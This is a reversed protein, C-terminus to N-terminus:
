EKDKRPWSQMRSSDEQGNRKEPNKRKVFGKVKCSNTCFKKNVVGNAPRRKVVFARGCVSCIGVRGEAVIRCLESVVANNKQEYLRYGRNIDFSMTDTKNYYHSWEALVFSVICGAADRAALEEDNTHALFSVGGGDDLHLRVAEHSYYDTHLNDLEYLAEKIPLLNTIYNEPFVTRCLGMPGNVHEFEFMGDSDMLGRSVAAMKLIAGIRLSLLELEYLFVVRLDPKPRAEAMEYFRRAEEITWSNDMSPFQAFWKELANGYNTYKELDTLADFYDVNFDSAAAMIANVGFHLRGLFQHLDPPVPTSPEQDSADKGHKDSNLERQNDDQQEDAGYTIGRKSRVHKLSKFHYNGVLYGGDQHSKFATAEHMIVLEDPYQQLFAVLSRASRISLLENLYKFPDPKKTPTSGDHFYIAM